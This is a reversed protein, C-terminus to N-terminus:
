AEGLAPNPYGSREWAVPQGLDRHAPVVGPDLVTLAQLTEGGDATTVPVTTPKRYEPTLRGKEDHSEYGYLGKPFALLGRPRAPLVVTGGYQEFRGLWYEVSGRQRGYESDAQYECGFLGVHTVGETMGLAIMYAVHNTFYPRFEALIREKPYRVSMPIDPYNEQMFVPTQLRKLWTYYKPNWAKLETKFCEPRHMDFYWDPERECERRASCHSIVTWRPDHWPAQRASQTCGILALQKTRFYPARRHRVGGLAHSSGELLFAM